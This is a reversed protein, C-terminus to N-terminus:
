LYEENPAPPQFHKHPVPNLIITCSSLLFEYQVRAEDNLSFAGTSPVGGGATEPKAAKM